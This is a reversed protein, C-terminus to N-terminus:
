PLDISRYFASPASSRPAIWPQASFAVFVNDVTAWSGSLPNTSIEIRQVSSIDAYLNVSLDPAANVQLLPRGNIEPLLALETQIEDYVADTVPFNLNRFENRFDSQFAYSIAAVWLTARFAAGSVSDHAPDYRTHWDPNFQQLARMLRKLPRRYGQGALEAHECFKFAVTMLAGITEDSPTAPDNWSHFNMGESRYREYADRVIAMSARASNRVDAALEASLGLESSHNVLEYATAHQFIQALTESFIANANGDIKGGYHYNSPSNLTINHGMEHLFSSWEVRAGLSNASAGLSVPATFWLSYMGGSLGTDCLLAQQFSGGPRVCNDNVFGRQIAAGASLVYEVASRTANSVLANSFSGLRPSIGYGPLRSVISMNTSPAMVAFEGPLGIPTYQQAVFRIVTSVTGTAGAAYHATVQVAYNTVVNTYVHTQPFFGNNTKGDGWQWTFPISPRRADYGNVRVEGTNLNVSEVFLSLSQTPGFIETSYNFEIASAGVGILIFAVTVVAHATNSLVATLALANHSPKM